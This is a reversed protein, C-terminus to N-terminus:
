YPLLWGSFTAFNQGSTFASHVTDSRIWVTDGTKLSVIVTNSAMSYDIHDWSDAWARGFQVGNVVLETQMHSHDKNVTTWFFVYIGPSPATFVGDRNNYANGINTRVRDFIMAQHNGIHDHDASLQAYFAIGRSTTARQTGTPFSFILTIMASYFSVHVRKSM